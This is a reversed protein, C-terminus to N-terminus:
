ADTIDIVRTLERRAIKWGDSTRRYQDRYEGVLSIGVLQAPLSGDGRLGQIALGICFGEAADPGHVTIKANSLLHRRIRDSQIILRDVLVRIGKHGNMEFGPAPVVSRFVCDDTWLTLFKEIDPTDLYINYDVMLKLCEREILLKDIENM